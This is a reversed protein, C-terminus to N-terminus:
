LDVRISIEGHGASGGIEDEAAALVDACGLDLVGDRGVGGDRYRCRDRHGIRHETFLDAEIGFESVRLCDVQGLEDLVQQRESNGLVQEGVSEDHDIFKGSRGPALDGFALKALINSDPHLGIMFAGLARRPPRSTQAGDTTGGIPTSSDSSCVRAIAKRWRAAMPNASFMAPCMVQCGSPWVSMNTFGHPNHHCSSVADSMQTTSLSARTTRPRHSTVGAIWMWVSSCGARSAARTTM